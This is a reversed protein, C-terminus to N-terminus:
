ASLMIRWRCAIMSKARECCCWSCILKSSANSPLLRLLHSKGAATTANSEAAPSSTAALGQQHRLQYAFWGAVFGVAILLLSILIAIVILVCLRCRSCYIASGGFCCCCCCCCRQTCATESDTSSSRQVLKTDGVGFSTTRSFIFCRRRRIVDDMRVDSMVCAPRLRGTPIPQHMILPTQSQICTDRTRERFHFRSDVDFKTSM